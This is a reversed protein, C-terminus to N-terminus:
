RVYEGSSARIGWNNASETENISLLLSNDGNIIIQGDGKNGFSDEYTFTGMSNEIVTEVECTAVQAAEGKIASISLYMTRNAACTVRITNHDGKESHKWLGEFNMFAADGQSQTTEEVPTEEEVPVDEENSDEVPPQTEEVVAETAPETVEATTSVQTTAETADTKTDGNGGCACLSACIMASMLLAIVKKM